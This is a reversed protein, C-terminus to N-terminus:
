PEPRAPQEAIAGAEEFLAEDPVYADGERGEGQRPGLIGMALQLVLRSVMHGYVSEYYLGRARTLASRADSVEIESAVGERYGVEALRLGENARGLNLKQSEVFEEANRLSLLTQRIQLFTQEQTNALRFRSQALHAKEQQVRGERGLGDFISLHLSVGANWTDDWKNTTASKPSPKGWLETFFADVKPWYESRAVRLAEERLRIEIEARYLDPRNEHAIRLAEELVPEMPRYELEDALLIDGKQLVGMAKLLRSKALDVNNRQKIMEARFNSVDVEARLVDYDSAVGLRRKKKVDELHVVASDVADKNVEYQHQFLLADYYAQAVGYLTSQLASRVAEDSLLEALRAARLAAGIAGGRFVPQSVSLDISYNDEDGLAISVTGVDFTNVQDLRTYTGKVNVKPLAAAYSEIVRGRAIEREQLTAQLEKNQRIALKVADALHLKGSITVESEEEAQRMKVWQNYAATRTERIDRVLSDRSACGASIQVWLIAALFFPSRMSREMM